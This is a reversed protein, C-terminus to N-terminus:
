QEYAWALSTQASVDGPKLTLATELEKTAQSFKGVRVLVAGLASHGEEIQPVLRVVKELEVQATKLDNNMAATTGARYAAQAKHTIEAPSGVSSATQAAFGRETVLGLTLVLLFRFPYMKLPAAM